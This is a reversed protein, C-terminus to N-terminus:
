RQCKCVLQILNIMCVFNVRIDRAQLCACRLVVSCLSQDQFMDTQEGVLQRVNSVWAEVDYASSGWHAAALEAVLGDVQDSSSTYPSLRYGWKKRTPKKPLVTGRTCDKKARPRKPLVEGEAAEFIDSPPRSQHTQHPPQSQPLDPSSLRTGLQSPDVCVPQPHSNGPTRPSPPGSLPSRLANVFDNDFGLQSPAVCASQRYPM